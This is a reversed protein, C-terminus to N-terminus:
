GFGPFRDLVGSSSPSGASVRSGGDYGLAGFVPDTDLRFFAEGFLSGAVARPGGPPDAPDAGLRRLWSRVTASLLAEGCSVLLALSKRFSEKAADIRGLRVLSVGHFRWARGEDLPLLAVRAEKAARSLMEEARRPRGEMLLLAAELVRLSVELSPHGAVTQRFSTRVTKLGRRVGMMDGRALKCELLREHVVAEDGALGLSHMLSAARRLRRQGEEFRGLLAALWGFGLESKASLVASGVEFALGQARELAPQAADLDGMALLWLARNLTASAVSPADGVREYLASAETLAAVAKKLRQGALEALAAQLFAEAGMWPQRERLCSRAVDHAVEVAEETRGLRRLCAAYSLSAYAREWSFPLRDVARFESETLSTAEAIAGRALAASSLAAIGLSRGPDGPATTRLLREIISATRLLTRTRGLRRSALAFFSAAALYEAHRGERQSRRMLSGARKYVADWSGRSALAVLEEAGGVM